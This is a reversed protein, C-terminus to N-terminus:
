FRWSTSEFEVSYKYNILLPQPIKPCHKNKLMTKIIGGLCNIQNSNLPLKFQAQGQKSGLQGLGHDCQM